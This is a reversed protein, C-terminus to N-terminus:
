KERLKKYLLFFSLIQKLIFNGKIQYPAHIPKFSTENKQNQHPNPGFRVLLIAPLLRKIFRGLFNKKEEIIPGVAYQLIIAM